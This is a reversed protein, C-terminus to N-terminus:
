FFETTSDLIRSDYTSNLALNNGKLAGSYLIAVRKKIM